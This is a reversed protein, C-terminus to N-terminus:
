AANTASAMILYRWACEGSHSGFGTPPFTGHEVHHSRQGYQDEYVGTIPVRKGTKFPGPPRDGEQHPQDM